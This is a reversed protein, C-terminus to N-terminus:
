EYLAERSLAEDSLSVGAPAALRHLRDTWSTDSLIEPAHIALSRRLTELALQEPTDGSERARIALMREIDFPLTLTM